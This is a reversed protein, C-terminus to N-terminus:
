KARRRKQGKKVNPIEPVRRGQEAPGISGPIQRRQRREHDLDRAGGARDGSRKEHDSDARARGPENASEGPIEDEALIRESEEKGNM